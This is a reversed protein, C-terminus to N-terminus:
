GLLLREVENIDSPTMREHWRSLEHWELWRGSDGAGFLYGAVEGAAIGHLLLVVLPLLFWTSEQRAIRTVDPWMGALRIWPFLPSAAVYLFRRPWSWAAARESAFRRGTYFAVHLLRTPRSVNAHGLRAAPWGCFRHGQARLMEYFSEEHDLLHELQHLFPQLLAAKFAVNHWPLWSTEHPQDHGNLRGYFVLQYARSTWSRLNLGSVRPGVIAWPGDHARLIQEAWDPEPLVHNEMLAIVKGRAARVGSAAAPGRARVEPVGVVSVRHFGRLSSAHDAGADGCPTVLILELRERITQAALGRLPLSLAAVNTPTVLVVSLAPRDTESSM